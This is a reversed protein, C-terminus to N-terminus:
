KVHCTNLPLVTHKHFQRNHLTILQLCLHPQFTILHCNFGSLVRVTYVEAL